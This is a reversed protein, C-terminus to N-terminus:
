AAEAIALEEVFQAPIILRNAPRVGHLSTLIRGGLLQAFKQALVMEIGTGGYKSASADDEHEFSDLVAQPERIDGDKDFDVVALVFNEDSDRGIELEIRGGDRRSATAACLHQLAQGMIKWDTKGAMEGDIAVKFDVACDTGALAKDIPARWEEVHRDMAGFTPNIPMKGAEIRSYDLIDDILRLLSSGSEHVNRLDQLSEEDQEDAAEEMLLHSYGIIANLPTRLEHSMSAVFNAKAASAQQASITLNQVNDSISDLSRLERTFNKQENFMRAFYMAMMAFYVAVSGMSIMGITQMTELDIYPTKHGLMIMAIFAGTSGFIQVLLLNRLWGGPPLYLFALLPFILLWPLFPSSLGGFAYCAWLGCFILNQVSIVSLTSYRKSWRLAFPYAWFALISFFFVFVRYDRCINMVYLYIPLTNGLIPGFVHSIMFMRARRHSAPDAQLEAPIFHDLFGSLTWRKSKEARVQM